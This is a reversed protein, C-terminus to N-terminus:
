FEIENGNIIDSEQYYANESHTEIYRINVDMSTTGECVDIEFIGYGGDDDYWNVGTEELYDYTINHIAEKLSIQTENCREKWQHSDHYVQNTIITVLRSEDLAIDLPETEIGDICGSDGSGDFTVRISTIGQERLIPLLTRLNQLHRCEQQNDHQITNKPLELPINLQQHICKKTEIDPTSNLLSKIQTIALPSDNNHTLSLQVTWRKKQIFVVAIATLGNYIQPHYSAVCHRQRLGEMGLRRSNKILYGKWSHPLHVAFQDINYLMNIKALQALTASRSLRNHEEKWRNESWGLNVRRAQQKAMRICDGVPISRRQFTLYSVAFALLRSSDNACEGADLIDSLVLEDIQKANYLVTLPHKIKNPLKSLRSDINQASNM